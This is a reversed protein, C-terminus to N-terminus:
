SLLRICYVAYAVAWSKEHRDVHKFFFNFKGAPVGANIYDGIAERVWRVPSQHATTTSWGMGALDYTMPLLLDLEKGLAKLDLLSYKDKSAPLAASLLYPTTQKDAQAAEILQTKLDRLLLVFNTPDDKSFNNTAGPSGPYEWDIDIGDFGYHSCIAAATRAFNLRKNPDAAIQSFQDSFTWGGISALVKVHRYKQKFEAIQRIGGEITNNDQDQPSYEFNSWNDMFRISGDQMPKLFAYLVHTIQDGPLNKFHFNRAYISWDSYYVVVKYGNKSNSSTSKKTSGLIAFSSEPPQPKTVAGSSTEGTPPTTTDTDKKSSNLQPM